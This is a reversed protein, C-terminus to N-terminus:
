REEELEMRREGTKLVAVPHSGATRQIREDLQDIRLPVFGDTGTFRVQQNRGGILDTCDDTAGVLLASTNTRAVLAFANTAGVGPALSSHAMTRVSPRSITRGGAFGGDGLRRRSDDLAIPQLFLSGREHRPHM